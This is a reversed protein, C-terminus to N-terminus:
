KLDTGRQDNRPDIYKEADDYRGYKGINKNYAEQPNIGKRIDEMM